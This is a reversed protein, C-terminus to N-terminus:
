KLGVSKVSSKTKNTVPIRQNFILNLINLKYKVKIIRVYVKGDLKKEIDKRFENENEVEDLKFFIISDNSM